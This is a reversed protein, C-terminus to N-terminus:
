GTVDLALEFLNSVITFLHLPGGPNAILRASTSATAPPTSQYPTLARVSRAAHAPNREWTIEVELRVEPTSHSKWSSYGLQRLVKKIQAPASM